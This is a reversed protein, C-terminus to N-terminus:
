NWIGLFEEKTLPAVAIFNDNYRNYSYGIDRPSSLTNLEKM